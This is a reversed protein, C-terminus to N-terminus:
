KDKATSRFLMLNEILSGANVDVWPVGLTILIQNCFKIIYICYLKRLWIKFCEYKFGLADIFKCIAM